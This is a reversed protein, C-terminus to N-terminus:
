VSSALAEGRRALCAFNHCFLDNHAVPDLARAALNLAAYLPAGLRGLAGYAVFNLVQLVTLVTGGQALLTM